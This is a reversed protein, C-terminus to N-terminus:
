VAEFIRQKIQEYSETIDIVSIKEKPKDTCCISEFELLVAGEDNEIISKIGNVPLILRHKDYLLTVEIFGKM